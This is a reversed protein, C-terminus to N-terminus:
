GPESPEVDDGDEFLSRGPADADLDEVDQEDPNEPDPDRDKTEDDSPTDDTPDDSVSAITRVRGNM